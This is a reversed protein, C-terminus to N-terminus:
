ECCVPRGRNQFIRIPLKIYESADAVSREHWVISSVKEWTSGEEERNDNLPALGDQDFGSAREQPLAYTLAHISIRERDVREHHQGIVKM